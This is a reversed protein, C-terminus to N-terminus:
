NTLNIKVDGLEDIDYLRESDKKVKDATLIQLSKTLTTIQDIIGSLRQEVVEIVNTLNDEISKTDIMITPMNLNGEKFEKLLSRVENIAIEIETKVIHDDVSDDVDKITEDESESHIFELEPEFGKFADAIGDDIKSIEAGQEMNGTVANKLADIIWEDLFPKEEIIEIDKKTFGEQLAKRIANKEQDSYSNTLAEQNAPVPVASFELLDWKKFEIGYAGMGWSDREKETPRRAEVANFGISAAKLANANILRFISDARGTPDLEDNFFLAWSRVEKKVKDVWVKIANGIPPMSYDHAFLVVPNKKFNDFSAGSARVIDGHRDVAETSITYERVRNEFGPHYELGVKKCLTKCEDSSLTIKGHVSSPLAKLQKEKSKKEFIKEANDTGYLAKLTEPTM